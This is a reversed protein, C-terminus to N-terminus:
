YQIGFIIPNVCNFSYSYWFTSNLVLAGNVLGLGLGLDLGLPFSSNPSWATELIKWIGFYSPINEHSLAAEWSSRAKSQTLWPLTVDSESQTLWPATVKLNTLLWSLVRLFPRYHTSGGGDVVVFSKNLQLSSILTLYPEPSPWIITQLDPLRWTFM